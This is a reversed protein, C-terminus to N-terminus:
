ATGCHTQRLKKKMNLHKTLTVIAKGNKQNQNLKCAKFKLLKHVKNMDHLEMSCKGMNLCETSTVIAQKELKSLNLECAKFKSLKHVKNADHLEM